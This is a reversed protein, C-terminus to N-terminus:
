TVGVGSVWWQNSFIKEALLYGPSTVTRSGTGGSPLWILSDGGAIAVTLTGGGGATFKVITGVDYAVSANAAITHTHPSASNHLMNKGADSLVTTYAGNQVNQPLGLYGSSTANTGGQPMAAVSTSVNALSTSVGSLSSSIQSLSTSQTVNTSNTSSLSSSVGTLSTSVNAATSNTSSLSSSIQSLSTTHNAVNSNTTSLSSTVNATSTSVNTLSSNTSSLSSSVQSLSTKTNSLSSAVGSVVSDVAIITTNLTTGWADADAGVTPYVWGYTTTSLDAM